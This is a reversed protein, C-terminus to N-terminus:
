PPYNSFYTPVQLLTDPHSHQHQLETSRPNDHISSPTETGLQVLSVNPQETSIQQMYASHSSNPSARTPAVIPHVPQFQTQISIFYTSNHATALNVPSVSSSFTFPPACYNLLFYVKSSIVHNITHLRRHLM